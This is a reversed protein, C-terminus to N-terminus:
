FKSKAAGLHCTFNNSIYTDENNRLNTLVKYTHFSNHRCIVTYTSGFGSTPWEGEDSALM